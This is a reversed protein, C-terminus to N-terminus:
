WQGFGAGFGSGFGAGFGEGFSAGYGTGFGGGIYPKYYRQHYNYDNRIRSPLLELSPTVARAPTNVVIPITVPNPGLITVMVTTIM